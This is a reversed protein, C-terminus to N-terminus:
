DGQQLAAGHALSQAPAKARHHSHDKGGARHEHAAHSHLLRFIRLEAARADLGPIGVGEVERGLEHLPLVKFRLNPSLEFVAAGQVIPTGLLQLFPLSGTDRRLRTLHDLENAHGAGLLHHRARELHCGVEQRSQRTASLGRLM